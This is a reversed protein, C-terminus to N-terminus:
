IRGRPDSGMSGFCGGQIGRNDLPWRELGLEPLFGFGRVRFLHSTCRCDSCGFGRVPEGRSSVERALTCEVREDTVRLYVSEIHVDPERLLYDIHWRTVKRLGRSTEVHRLIRTELGNLASGIYVYLGRPLVTVGLAGVEVDIDEDVAICLCYVGRSVM